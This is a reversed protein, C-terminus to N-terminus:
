RNPDVFRYEAFYRQEEAARELFVERAREVSGIDPGTDIPAADGIGEGSTIRLFTWANWGVSAILLLLAITLLALWDRSPKKRDVIRPLKPRALSTPLHFNM